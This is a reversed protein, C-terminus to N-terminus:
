SGLIILAHIYDEHDEGLLNKRIALAAKLYKEAAEFGGSEASIKGLTYLCDAHLKTGEGEQNLVKQECAGALALAEEYSGIDYLSDCVALTSDVEAALLSIETGQATASLPLLSLWLLAYKQM